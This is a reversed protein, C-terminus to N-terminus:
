TAVLLVRPAPMNGLLALGVCQAGLTVPPLASQAPISGQGVSLAPLVCHMVPVLVHQVPMSAQVVSLALYVCMTVPPLAHLPCSHGLGVYQVATACLTAPPPAPLSCTLTPLPAPDGVHTAPHRGQPQGPPGLQALHFTNCM